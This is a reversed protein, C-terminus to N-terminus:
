STPFQATPPTFAATYVPEGVTYRFSDIWGDLYFSTESFHGIRIEHTALGMGLDTITNESILAGGIFTRLTTGEKAWAVHNWDNDVIETAGLALNIDLDETSRNDLNNNWRNGGHTSLNSLGCHWSLPLSAVACNNLGFDTCKVWAEICFDDGSAIDLNDTNPFKWYTSTGPTKMSSSGFKFQSTDLVTGSGFPTLVRAGADESTYTEQGNAGEMLLLVKVNAFTAEPTGGGGGPFTNANAPNKLYAHKYYHKLKNGVFGSKGRGATAPNGAATNADGAVNAIIHRQWLDDISYDNAKGGPAVAIFLANRFDTNLDGTQAGGQATIFTYVGESDLPPYEHETVSTVM